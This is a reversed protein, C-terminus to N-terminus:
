TVVMWLYLRIYPDFNIKNGHHSHKGANWMFYLLPVLVCSTEQAKKVIGIINHGKEM